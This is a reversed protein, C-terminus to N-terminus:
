LHIFKDTKLYKCCGFAVHPKAADAYHRGSVINRKNGVETVHAQEWIKMSHACDTLVAHTSM